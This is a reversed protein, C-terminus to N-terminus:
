WLLQGRERGQIEPWVLECSGHAHGPSNGPGMQLCDRGRAFTQSFSDARSAERCDPASWLMGLPMDTESRPGAQASNTSGQILSSRGGSM